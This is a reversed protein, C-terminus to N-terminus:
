GPDPFASDSTFYWVGVGLEWFKGVKRFKGVEVGSESRKAYRSHLKLTLLQLSTLLFCKLSSCKRNFNCCSFSTESAGNSYTRGEPLVSPPIRYVVARRMNEQTHTSKRPYANGSLVMQAIDISCHRTFRNRICTIKYAILLACQQSLCSLANKGNHQTRIWPSPLHNQLMWHFDHHVALIRQESSLKLLFQVIEAPV